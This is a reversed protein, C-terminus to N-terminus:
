EYNEERSVHRWSKNSRIHSIVTEVVGFHAAIDKNRKHPLLLIIEKVKDENLKAQGNKSGKTNQIFNLGTSFAHIANESHTVWELNEIRNDTKIGNKHNVEKKNEPNPIFHLAVLRHVSEQKRVGNKSLHVRPYGCTDLFSKLIRGRVIKTPINKNCVVYRDLSKFRLLNSIQYCGEYGDMDKWIEGPLSIIDKPIVCGSCIKCSSRLKDWSGNDVYFESKSKEKKCKSCKKLELNEMSLFLGWIVFAIWYGSLALPLTLSPLKKFIKM